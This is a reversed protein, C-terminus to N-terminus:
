SKAAALQLVAAPVVFEKGSVTILKVQNGAVGGLTATLEVKEVRENNAYQSLADGMAVVVTYTTTAQLVSPGQPLTIQVSATGAATSGAIAASQVETPIGYAPILKVIVTNGTPVNTTELNVSVPNPVAAPLVIDASGTPNAPANVGAVSAIRLAPISALFVPGPTDGVYAPQSSGSYTISEGELRIRGYSGGYGTFNNNDLCNQRRQGSGHTCGGLAYLTGNGTISTAILRIAGGSGGGGL